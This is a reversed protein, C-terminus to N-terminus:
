PNAPLAAIVEQALHAAAQSLASVLAAHDQGDWPASPPSFHRRAIVTGDDTTFEIVAAFSAIFAGANAVGECRTIRIAIEYDHQAEFPFPHLDVRTVGPAGLLGARVIRAVGLDIAEAWRAYDIYALENPGERVVLSRNRLYSPLEVPRLGLRLGDTAPVAAPASEPATLVYHRTPDEVPDPIIQCGSLFLLALCSLTFIPFKM